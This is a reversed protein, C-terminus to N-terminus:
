GCKPSDDVLVAPNDDAHPQKKNYEELVSKMAPVEVLGNIFLEENSNPDTKHNKLWEQLAKREYIQITLKGECFILAGVPDIMLDCTIPCCLHKPIDGELPAKPQKVVTNEPRFIGSQVQAPLRSSPSIPSGDNSLYTRQQKLFYENGNKWSFVFNVKIIKRLDQQMIKLLSDCYHKDREDYPINPVDSDKVTIEQTCNVISSLVCLVNWGHNSANDHFRVEIANTIIPPRADFSPGTPKDIYISKTLEKYTYVCNDERSATNIAVTRLTEKFKNAASEDEFYFSANRHDGAVVTIQNLSEYFSNLM